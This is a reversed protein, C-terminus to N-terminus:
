ARRWRPGRRRRRHALGPRSEDALSPPWLRQWVCNHDKRRSRPGGWCSRIICQRPCQRPGGSSNGAPRHGAALTGLLGRANGALRGSAPAGGKLLRSVRTLIHNLIWLTSEYRHSHQGRRPALPRLSCQIHRWIGRPVVDLAAQRHYQILFRLALVLNPAIMAFVPEDVLHCALRQRVLLM